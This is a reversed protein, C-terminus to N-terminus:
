DLALGAHERPQPAPFDNWHLIVARDQATLVPAFLLLFLAVWTLARVPARVDTLLM